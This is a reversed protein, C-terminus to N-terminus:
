GNNLAKNALRVLRLIRQPPCGGRNNRQTWKCILRGGEWHEDGMKGGLRVEGERPDDPDTLIVYRRTNAM